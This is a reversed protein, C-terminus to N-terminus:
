TQLEEPSENGGTHAPEKALALTLEHEWQALLHLDDHESKCAPCMDTWHTQTCTCACEPYPRWTKM